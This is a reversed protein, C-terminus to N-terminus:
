IKALEGRCWNLVSKLGEELQIEPAFGLAGIKSIDAQWNLPNGRTVVGNFRPKYEFGLMRLIMNALEAISVQRGSGINYAEGEMAATEAILFLAKTIDAAHVFDRSERGTGHLELSNRTAVKECIDWIVQRRLGAGYASFVRASATALGYVKAFEQCLEECQMKHFGYPSVPTLPQDECIPLLCPNGYVAASSILVFRCAPCYVRLMNLIEFTLVTSSYFDPSPDEMSRGVSAPGACHICVQPLYHQLLGILEKDPLQICHYVSLNELPGNEPRAQDVGIVSWGQESFHRAAYRGIFGAVGTILVNRSM